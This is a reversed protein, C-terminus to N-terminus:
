HIFIDGPASASCKTSTVPVIQVSDGCDSSMLTCPIKQILSPVQHLFRELLKACVVHHGIPLPLTERPM